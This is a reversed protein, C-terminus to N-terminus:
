PQLHYFKTKNPMDLVQLEFNKVTFIFVMM